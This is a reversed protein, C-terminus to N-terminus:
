ITKRSGSTCSTKSVGIAADLATSINTLGIKLKDFPEWGFGLRFSRDSMEFWHGPGVYTSLQDLLIAYFAALDILVDERIRPLCVVGGIPPVWELAPQHDMWEAVARCNQEVQTRIAPLLRDRMQLVRLAIEEDVVSGCLFIQEKAALLLRQLEPDRSVVWGIRIGPMGYAKSMSAVSIARPSIAAALRPMNGRHLDRYTEDVLLKCDHREAIQILECLDEESIVAGSPNHPYTVSILRTEPQILSEVKALDLQYQDEFILDLCIVSCPLLRPVEINTSYNPRVVVISSNPGLLATNVMFLAAAAGPAILVDDPAVGYQEALVERLATKGRHETYALILDKLDLNLDGLRADWISSEALNYKIASYGLEEPSEVEIPCRRYQM